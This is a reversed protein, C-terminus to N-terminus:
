RPGVEKKGLLAFGRILYHAGSVAVLATTIWVLWPMLAPEGGVYLGILAVVLLALLFFTTLKGILTPRIKERHGMRYLIVSGSVIVLDRGLVAVTLWLPIRELITLAILASLVLMKDALPDLLVGLQTKTNTMRAVAGDLADTVGAVIFTVIAFEIKDYILFSVFVPILAIRLLTLANPINM